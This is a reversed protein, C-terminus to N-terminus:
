VLSGDMGNAVNMHEKDRKHGSICLLFMNLVDNSMMCGVCATMLKQPALAKSMVMKEEEKLKSMSQMM